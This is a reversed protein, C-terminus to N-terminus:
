APKAATIYEVLDALKANWGDVNGAQRELQLEESAELTDFGSELLELRTGDAEATLTIEVLTSNGTTIELPEEREPDPHAWRFSFFTKPEVAEVRGSGAGHGHFTFHAPGGPRLELDVEDSFWGAIQEPDTIVDWVVDLPADIQIQKQIQTAPM